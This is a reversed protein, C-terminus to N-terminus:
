RQSLTEQGSDNLRVYKEKQQNDARESKVRFKSMRPHHSRSHNACDAHHEREVRHVQQGHIQCSYNQNNHGDRQESEFCFVRTM